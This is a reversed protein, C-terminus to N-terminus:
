VMVLTVRMTNGELGANERTALVGVRANTSISARHFAIIGELLQESWDDDVIMLNVDVLLFVNGIHIVGLKVARREGLIVGLHDSRGANANAAIKSSERKARANGFLLTEVNFL